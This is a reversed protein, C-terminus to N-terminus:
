PFKWPIWGLVVLGLAISMAWIGYRALLTRQRSIPNRLEFLSWGLLLLAALALLVMDNSQIGVLGFVAAPLFLVWPIAKRTRATM